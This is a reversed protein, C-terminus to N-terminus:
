LALEYRTFSLRVRMGIKEYLTLAGTRSDTSLGTSPRGRRHARRFTEQLLARAIGQGRQERVVALQHVWTEEPDDLVFAAGVLAGDREALLFDEPVFDERDITQVRWEDFGTPTRDPWEGFANEIIQYASLEDGPRFHRIRVGDPLHPADPPSPHEMRLVWSTYRVRYGADHLLRVGRHDQDALTQGITDRGTERARRESWSRLWTGLGQGTHDPHVNVEAIRDYIEASGVLRRREDYVGITHVQPAFSDVSWDAAIDARTILPEGLLDREVAQILGAVADVDAPTHPRVQYGPLTM